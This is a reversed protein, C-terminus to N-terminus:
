RQRWPLAQAPNGAAYHLEERVRRSLSYTLLSLPVHNQCAEECMGCGSCSSLWRSLSVLEPLLPRGHGSSSRGVGLMGALEGEYLPCADLCDACLTCRAICALLGSFDSYESPHAALLAHTQANKKEFVAELAVERRSVSTETAIRSTAKALGLHGDTVEDRAIVLLYGHRLVGITGIAFDAGRPSSETCIQCATRMLAPLSSGNGSISMAEHLLNDAGRVHVQDAYKNVSLTGLCDVGILVLRKQDLELTLPNSFVRQRKDLEVLTRLECPRLIVALRGAPHERIFQPVLSAINSTMVPAFPNVADVEDPEHIAQIVVENRGILEIPALISKVAAQEWWDKLFKRFTGLPDKNQIQVIRNVNM